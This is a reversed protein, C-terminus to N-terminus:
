PSDLAPFPSEDAEAIHTLFALAPEPQLGAITLDNSDTLSVLRFGARLVADLRDLLVSGVGCDDVQRLLALQPSRCGSSRSPPGM